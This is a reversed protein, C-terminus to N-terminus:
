GGIHLYPYNWDLRELKPWTELRDEFFCKNEQDVLKVSSFVSWLQHDGIEHQAGYVITRRLVHFERANPVQCDRKGVEDFEGELLGWVMVMQSQVRGM